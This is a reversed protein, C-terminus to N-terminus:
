HKVARKPARKDIKNLVKQAHRINMPDFKKLMQACTINLMRYDPHDKDMRLSENQLYAMHVEDPAEQMYALNSVFWAIRVRIGENIKCVLVYRRYENEREFPTAERLRFCRDPNEEFWAKDALM